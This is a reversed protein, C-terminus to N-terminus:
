TIRERNAWNNAKVTAYTHLDAEMIRLVQNGIELKDKAQIAVLLDAFQRQSSGALCDEIEDRDTKGILEALYEDRKADVDEQSLGISM